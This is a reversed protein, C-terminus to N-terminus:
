MAGGSSCLPQVIREAINTEENEDGENSEKRRCHAM